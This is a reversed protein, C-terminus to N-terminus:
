SKSNHVAYHPLFEYKRKKLIKFIEDLSLEINEGDLWAKGDAVNLFDYIM